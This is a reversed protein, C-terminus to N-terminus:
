AFGCDDGNIMFIAFCIVSEVFFGVISIMALICRMNFSLRDPYFINAALSAAILIGVLLGLYGFKSIHGENEGNFFRGRYGLVTAMPGIAMILLASLGAFLSLAMLDTTETM